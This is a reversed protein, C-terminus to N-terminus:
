LPFRPPNFAIALVAAVAAPNELHAAHGAAAIPAVRSSPMAEAAADAIAAFKHDETGHIWWTPNEIGGLSEFLPPMAGTGMGRLSNALGTPDNRLRQARAAVLAEEGLRSQSAFLPLQMWRDVFAAVGDAEILDALEEDAARRSTRASEDALGPSGGILALNRVREPRAATLSLGVRAGMSYGVLDCRDVELTDLAALVQAVCAEMSYHRPDAPSSSSGHGVLDPALVRRDGLRGRLPAITQASGTFGHLLVVPPPDSAAAAWESVSLTEGDHDIEHIM